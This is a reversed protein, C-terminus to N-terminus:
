RKDIINKFHHIISFILKINNDKDLNTTQM